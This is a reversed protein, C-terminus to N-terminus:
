ENYYLFTHFTLASSFTFSFASLVPFPTSCFVIIIIIIIIIIIFRVNMFGHMTICIHFHGVLHVIYTLKNNWAPDVYKPRHKRGDDPASSQLKCYRTTNVWTAAPQHHASSARFM